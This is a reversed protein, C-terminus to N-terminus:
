LSGQPSALRRLWRARQSEAQAAKRQGEGSALRFASIIKQPFKQRMWTLLRALGNPGKPRRMPGPLTVDWSFCRWDCSPLLRLLSRRESVKESDGLHRTLCDHIQHTSWGLGGKAPKFGPLLTGHIGDWCHLIPNPCACYEFLSLVAVFRM